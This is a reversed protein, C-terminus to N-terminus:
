LMDEEKLVPLKKIIFLAVLGIALQTLNGPISALAAYFDTLFISEFLYYGTLMVISGAGIAILNKIINSGQGNKDQSILGIVYGMFFRTVLTGMTWQAWISLIDFIAMGFGGALAGYKKGYKLAISYLAINGLHVLGGTSAFIPLQSAYVSATVIAIFMASYVIQRTTM